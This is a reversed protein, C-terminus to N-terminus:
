GFVEAASVVVIADMDIKDRGYADFFLDRYKDTHLNFNLTWAGWFLDVHRDGVGGNGLDIFGSFKWNDMLFNPLCYDGHILTDNKLLHRGELTIRYAEEPTGFISYSLDYGGRKYNEDVTHFYDDMRTKVPCDAFDSEHLTRLIEASSTALRRPDDLYLAFTADEGQVRKTLLWDSELSLYDVVPATFGKKNFYDDLLAEKALMGKKSQKLFYGEDRDIYIVKAEPSCSSDYVEAGEILKHFRQPIKEIDPQIKTRKM